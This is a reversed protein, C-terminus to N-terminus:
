FWVDIDFRIRDNTEKFPGLAVLQRVHYYKTILSLNDALMYGVFIEAGQLNTLRGDPSDFASYDWRAWDNQAMFDVASFRELYTYTAKFFWDGKSDLKGLSAAATVGGKDNRLNRQIADNNDYNELNAYYDLELQILPNDKVRVRSGLHFIVYDLLTTEAGDPIDAINKFFYFSPFVELSGNFFSSNAQVGQFYSDDSFSSGSTRLIFHGARLDVQDFIGSTLNFNKKLLVGEPFVNDSWFLENSKEFPFTNKGAWFTFGQKEVQFFLKEFGIRQLGFEGFEDGLTLQPDQQKKPNGTRIRTGFSAWENIKYGMGIRARYRLRSRDDRMTGDSRRSNWDQEIRFRFDASINLRSKTSDTQALSFASLLVSCFTVLIKPYTHQISM